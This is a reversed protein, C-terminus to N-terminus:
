AVSGDARPRRSLFEELQEVSPSGEVGRETRYVRCSLGYPAAEDAFPDAGDILITPSGRFRVREADAPSEVRELLIEENERGRRRLAEKLRQDAVRWNPCGGFYRLTVAM